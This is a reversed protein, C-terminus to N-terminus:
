SSGLSQSLYDEFWIIHDYYSPLLKEIYKIREENSREYLLVGEKIIWFQIHISQKELVRIELKDLNTIEGARVNLDILKELRVESDQLQFQPWSVFVDIDSWWSQQERVWSGALYAFAINYQQFLLELESQILVLLEDLSEPNKNLYTM